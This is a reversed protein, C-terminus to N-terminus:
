NKINETESQLKVKEDEQKEKRKREDALTKLIDETFEGFIPQECILQVRWVTGRFNMEIFIPEGDKGIAIDWSVYNRHLIRNHLNKVFDIVKDFNPLYGLDAFKYGTTPHTYYIKADGDSGYPKFEGDPSIAVAIGGGSTSDNDIVANGSGFKGYGCLYHIENNWRLTILRFTNVSSPHPKAMIPHQSIVEQMLFHKGFVKEIKEFTMESGNIMYKYNKYKIKKVAKGDDALSQKIIIDKKYHSFLRYAKTKSITFNDGDFYQGNVRKLIVKPSYDKTILLDYINKDSYFTGEQGFNFYPVVSENLVRQTIVRPDLRGTKRKFAIHVIPDVKKGYYNEWYNQVTNIDKEAIDELYGNSLLSNYQKIQINIGYKKHLHLTNVLLYLEEYSKKINEEIYDNLGEFKNNEVKKIVIKHLSELETLREYFISHRYSNDSYLNQLTEFAKLLTNYMNISQNYDHQLLSELTYDIIVLSKEILKKEKEQMEEM